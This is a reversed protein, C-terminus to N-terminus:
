APGKRKHNTPNEPSERDRFEDQEALDVLLTALAELAADSLEECDSAVEFTPEM